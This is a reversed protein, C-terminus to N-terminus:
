QEQGNQEGPDKCDDSRREGIHTTRALFENLFKAVSIRRRM